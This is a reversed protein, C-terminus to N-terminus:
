ALLADQEPSVAEQKVTAGQMLKRLERVGLTGSGFVKEVFPVRPNGTGGYVSNLREYEASAEPVAGAMRPNIYYERVRESIVSINGEGFVAELIPIEWEPYEEIMVAVQPDRAVRCKLFRVM